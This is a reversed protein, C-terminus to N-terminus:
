ELFFSWISSNQWGKAFVLRGKYRQRNQVSCTFPTMGYTAKQTHNKLKAYYKLPQDM